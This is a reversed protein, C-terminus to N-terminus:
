NKKKADPNISDFYDRVVSRMRPPIQSREVSREAERRYQPYASEYPVRVAGAGPKAELYLYEGGSNRQLRGGLKKEKGQGALASDGNIKDMGVRSNGHGRSQGQQGGGEGTRIGPQQEKQNRARMEGFKDGFKEAMGSAIEKAERNEILLRAAAELEKRIKEQSMLQRAVQELQEANVQRALQELTQQFEKSQAIPALDRALSECALDIVSRERDARRGRQDLRQITVLL